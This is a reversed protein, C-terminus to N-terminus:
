EYRPDGETSNIFDIIPAAAIDRWGDEYKLGIVMDMIGLGDKQLWIDIYEPDDKNVTVYIHWKVGNQNITNMHYLNNM